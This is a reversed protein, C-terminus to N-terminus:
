VYRWKFGGATKRKGQCCERINNSNVGSIRGASNISYHALIHNGCLSIQKIRRGKKNNAGSLTDKISKVHNDRWTTIRLRKLSYRKYDNTRDFSPSLWKNFDSKVWNDFLKHFIAQSLAWSRLEHLNYEPMGYLKSSPSHRQGNYKKAIFGDKTRNRAKHYESQKTCYKLTM